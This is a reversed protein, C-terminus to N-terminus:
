LMHKIDELDFPTNRASLIFLNAIINNDYPLRLKVNHPELTNNYLWLLVWSEDFNYILDKLM